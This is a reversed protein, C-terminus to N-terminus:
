DDRTDSPHLLIGVMGVNRYVKTCEKLSGIEIKSSKISVVFDRSCILLVDFHAMHNVMDNVMGNVMDNVM